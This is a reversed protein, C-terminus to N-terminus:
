LRHIGHHQSATHPIQLSGINLTRDNLVHPEKRIGGFDYRFRRLHVKPRTLTPEMIECPSLIIKTEIDIDSNQINQSSWSNRPGVRLTESESLISYLRWLIFAVIAVLELARLLESAALSQLM